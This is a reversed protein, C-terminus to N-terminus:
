ENISRIIALIYSYNEASEPIGSDSRYRLAADIDDETIIWNTQEIYINGDIITYSFYRDDKLRISKDANVFIKEKMLADMIM